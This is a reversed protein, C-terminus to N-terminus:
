CLLVTDPLTVRGVFETAAAACHRSSPAFQEVDVVRVGVMLCQAFLLM